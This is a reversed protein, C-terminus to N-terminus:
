DIEDKISDFDSKPIPLNWKFIIALTRIAIIIAISILMSPIQTLHKYTLAYFVSGILTPTLYIHKRLIFPIEMSCIDRLMGGGVGTICGCFILLVFNDGGSVEIAVNMGVVCFVSLGIADTFEIFFGHGHKSLLKATKPIFAFVFCITSVAICTLLLYTNKELSLIRPTIGLTLDRIFGGGFSTLLAFILAGIIDTRKRIAIVTSSVTFSIVGIYEVINLITEM